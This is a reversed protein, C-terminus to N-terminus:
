LSFLKFFGCSYMFLRRISNGLSSGLISLFLILLMHLTSCLNGHCIGHETFLAYYEGPPLKLEVEHKMKEMFEIERMDRIEREWAERERKDRQAEMELRGVIVASSECIM